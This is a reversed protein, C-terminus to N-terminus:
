LIVPEKITRQQPILVVIRTDKVTDIMMITVIQIYM